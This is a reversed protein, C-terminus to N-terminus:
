AMPGDVIIGESFRNQEFMIKLEHADLTAPMKPDLKEKASLCAAKVSIKGMAKAVISANEIIKAKEEVNPIINMGGDTLFILKHYGPIDYVMVHSLISDTRLGWEKNLVSKLLKSTDVLGKMIFNANGGSVLKVGIESAKVLDTENIIEIDKIDFGLKESISITKERDGILIPETIGYNMSEIVSHLVDEDHCAVVVLKM